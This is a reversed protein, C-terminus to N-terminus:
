RDASCAEEPARGRLVRRPRAITRLRELHVPARPGAALVDVALAERPLRRAARLLATPARVLLARWGPASALLADDGIRILRVGRPRPAPAGRWRVRPASTAHAAAALWRSWRAPPDGVAATTGGAGVLLARGGRRLLVRQEGPAPARWGLSAPAGPPRPLVAAAAVLLGAALLARWRPGRREARVAALALLGIAVWPTVAAPPVMRAPPLAAAGWRVVELLLGTVQDTLALLPAGAAPAVIGLALGALGAALLVGSLAVVAPGTPLAALPVVGLLVAVLGASAAFPIACGAVWGARRAGLPAAILAMAAVTGFSLLCGLDGPALPDLALVVALGAALRNWGDGRAPGLLAIVGAATARLTPAAPGVLALFAIVLAGAALRQARSGLGVARLAALALAAVLGVHLGSISLVHTAGAADFAAADEPPLPAREGLLAAGAIARRAGRLAGDLRARLAAHCSARLAGLGRGAEREVVRAAVFRWSAGLRAMRSWSDWSGPDVAVTPPAFRGLAILRAGPRLAGENEGTGELWVRHPGSAVLWSRRPGPGWALESLVTGELRCPGPWPASPQPRSPLARRELAAALGVLCGAALLTLGVLAKSARREPQSAGARRLALTLLALAPVLLGVWAAVPLLGGLSAGAIAALALPVAPRRAPVRPIQSTLSTM